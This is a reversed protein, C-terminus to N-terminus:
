HMQALTMRRTLPVTLREPIEGTMLAMWWLQVRDWEPSATAAGNRINSYARIGGLWAFLSVLQLTVFETLTVHSWPVIGRAFGNPYYRTVFWYFLLGFATAWGAVKLFGPAHLSWFCDYGVIVLTGAFLLPGLVPWYDALWHEDFFVLRYLGNTVLSLLVVIGVTSFMLGSAIRASSIPLGRIMQQSGQLAHLCVGIFTIWSTALFAFHFTFPKISGFDTPGELLYILERFSLPGLVLLCVALVAALWARKTYTKSIVFLLHTM